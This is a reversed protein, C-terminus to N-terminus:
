KLKKLEQYTANAEDISQYYQTLFSDGEQFNTKATIDQAKIEDIIKSDSFNADTAYYNMIIGVANTATSYRLAANGLYQESKRLIITLENAKSKADNDELQKVVGYFETIQTSYAVKKDAIEDLILQESKLMSIIYNHDINHNDMNKTGYDIRKTQQDWYSNFTSDIDKQTTEIKSYEEFLKDPIQAQNICM